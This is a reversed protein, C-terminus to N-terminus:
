SKPVAPPSSAPPPAQKRAAQAADQYDSLDKSMKKILRETLDDGQAATLATATKVDWRELIALWLADREAKQTKADGLEQTTFYDERVKILRQLQSDTIPSNGLYRISSEIQSSAGEQIGEQLTKAEGGAANTAVPGAAEKAPPADTAPSSKRRDIIKLRYLRLIEGAQDMTLQHAEQVSYRRMIEARFIKQSMDLDITLQLIEKVQADTAHLIVPGTPAVTLGTGLWTLFPTWFERGPKHGIAGDMAPCRSKGITVIHDQDIDGWITFEYEMGPRQIPTMGLKRIVTKGEANKESVTETRSRMTCIVHGPFSLIADVMRRHLPTVTAWAAWKNGKVTNKDLLELAGDIGEWAHSLSDIVLVDYGRAKSIAVTYEAPSFTTMEMHDFEFKLGDLERGFELLASRRESDIVAVRKGLLFALILADVTKGSGSPGALAVRAAVRERSGRQFDPM